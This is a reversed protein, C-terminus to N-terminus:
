KMSPVANFQTEKEDMMSAPAIQAVRGSPIQRERGLADKFAYSNGVLKPKGDTDIRAGNNLTIVYHRACGSLALLALLLLLPIRKM